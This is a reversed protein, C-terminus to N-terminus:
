EEPEVGAVGDADLSLRHVVGSQLNSVYLEGFGDESIGSIGSFVAGSAALNATQEFRQGQPTLGWFRETCYDAFFYVGQWARGAGRYPHGGTISCGLDHAYEDVPFRFRV